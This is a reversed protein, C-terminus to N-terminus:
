RGADMRAGIPVIKLLDIAIRNETRVLKLTAIRRARQAPRSIQLAM